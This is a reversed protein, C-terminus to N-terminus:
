GKSSAPRTRSRGSGRPPTRTSRMRAGAERLGDAVDDVARRVDATVPWDGLDPSVAIRLGRVDPDPVGLRLAPRLSAHDLPHPGCMVDAVLATDAVTRALPGLHCWMDLGYPPLQPVRGHAPKYGVVGCCGAPVRISGGIDSGTALPTMGSALAAASGGSSGGVDYAPNWPNRTVGWLRSATWFAISFEPTLTRAHIIAGADLLRQVMPENRECVEDVWLLSGNTTRKGDVEAEDKVAVPLGELPRARGSAYRTAAVLAAARAEEEYTDGFANVIPQMLRARAFLADLYEPPSLTGARFAGLVDIASWAHLDTM